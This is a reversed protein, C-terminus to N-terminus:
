SFRGCQAEGTFFISRARLECSEEVRPFSNAERFMFHARVFIRAYKRMRWTNKAVFKVKSFSYVFSWTSSKKIIRWYYLWTILKSLERALSFIQHQGGTRWLRLLPSFSPISVTWCPPWSRRPRIWLQRPLIYCSKNCIKVEYLYDWM